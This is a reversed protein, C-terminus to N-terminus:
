DVPPLVLSQFLSLLLGFLLAWWISEVLFGGVLYGAMMVIVANIFLLFIGFTLITIPLTLLILVPRVFIRLLGIVLAVILASGFDRVQIGPLFYALIVVMMATLLLRIIIRM